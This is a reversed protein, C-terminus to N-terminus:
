KRRLYGNPHFTLGFIECDNDIEFEEHTNIFEQVAQAAGICGITDEVIIYSGQTVISGYVELSKTIHEYTHAADLIVLIKSCSNAINKIIEVTNPCNAESNIIRLNKHQISPPLLDITVVLGTPNFLSLLDAMFLASGGAATGTEIILDPMIKYILQQYMWLDTTPKQCVVGRYTTKGSWIHHNSIYELSFQHALQKFMKIM